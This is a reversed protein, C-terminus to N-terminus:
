ESPLLLAEFGAQLFHRDATLAQTLKERGMVVFSLCDALSWSKDARDRFLDMAEALQRGNAEVVCFRPDSGHFQDWLGVALSRHEARSFSAAIELLVADTTWLERCTAIADGLSLAARHYEDRENFRAIAYSTDVFLRDSIPTTVM